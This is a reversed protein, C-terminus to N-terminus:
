RGEEKLLATLYDNERRTAELDFKLYKISVRLYDLSDQLRAVTQKLQDQPGAGKRIILIAQRRDRSPMSGIEKVLENIKEEFVADEM